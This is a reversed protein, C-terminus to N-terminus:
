LRQTAVIIVYFIVALELVIYLGLALNLLRGDLKAPGNNDM